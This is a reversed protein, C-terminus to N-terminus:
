GKTKKKSRQAVESSFGEPMWVPLEEIRDIAEPSVEIGWLDKMFPALNHGVAGSMRVAFEDRKAANEKPLVDSRTDQDNSYGTLVSQIAEWGFADRLQLYMALKDGAGLEAYPKGKALAKCAQEEVTKPDATWSWGGRNEMGLRDMAHASFFNVTVETSDDFTYPNNWGWAKDPRRQAEHGLEHFWGWNGKTKLKDLDVMGRCQKQPGQAPYGAHFLGASIQIDVNVREPGNRVHAMGGLEDHFAVVNNWYEMLETPDDMDRIWESPFSFAVRESVFEAYPAPAKRLTNKWKNVDTKGLVFYPAEIANGVQVSFPNGERPDNGTDIYIAGGYAGAIKVTKSDVPFKHAPSTPTRMLPKKKFPIGDRHGSLQVHLGQEVWADPFVLEVVEGPAAYLGTSQWRVLAPDIEVSRNVRRANKPIVGFIDAASPHAPVKEPPLKNLYDGARKLILKEGEDKVVKIKGNGDKGTTIGSREVCAKALAEREQGPLKRWAEWELKAMVASQEEKSVQDFRVIDKATSAGASLSFLCLTFIVGHFIFRM